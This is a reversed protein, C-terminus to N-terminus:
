VDDDIPRSRADDHVYQAAAGPSAHASFISSAVLSQETVQLISLHNSALVAGASCFFVTAIKM